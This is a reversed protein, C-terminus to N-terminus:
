VRTVSSRRRAVLAAALVALGLLEFSAPEPVATLVGFLGDREGNIGAVFFLADPNSGTNANPSSTNRFELAWLGPEAFPTGNSELLTGVFGGTLPNFANIMGDNFNGILLDGGFDGFGIPAMTIGWPANLHADGIDRILNGSTDFEAVFGGPAGRTGSYEVYLNGNVIQINYPTMGAPVNPDSFAGPGLTIPQFSSDFVDIKGTAKNAAFLVNATGTTGM